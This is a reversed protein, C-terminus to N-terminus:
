VVYVVDVVCEVFLVGVGSGCVCVGCSVYMSHLSCLCVCRVGWVYWGGGGCVSVECVWCM